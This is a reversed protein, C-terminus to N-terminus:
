DICMCLMPPIILTLERCKLIDIDASTYSNTRVRCLLESFARDGRQRMVEDLEILQFKDIWLSGAGYLQAYGDSVASFLFPQGVPPLQYLDGM